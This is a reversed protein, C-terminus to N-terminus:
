LMNSIGSLYFPRMYDLIVEFKSQLHYHIQVVSGGAERKWTNANCIHEVVDPQSQINEILM